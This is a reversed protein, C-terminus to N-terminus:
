KDITAALPHEEDVQKRASLRSRLLLAGTLAV